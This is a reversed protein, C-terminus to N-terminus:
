NAEKIQDMLKKQMTTDDRSICYLGSEGEKGPIVYQGESAIIEIGDTVHLQAKAVQTFVYEAKDLEFFEKARMRIKEKQYNWINETKKRAVIVGDMLFKLRQNFPKHMLMGGMHVLIDSVLFRPVIATRERDMVLTVDLLTRHQLMSPKQPNPVYLPCTLTSVQIKAEEDPVAELFYIGDSLLLLLGRRGKSRWTVKHTGVQFYQQLNKENLRCQSRIPLSMLDGKVNTLEKVVAIARMFRKSDSSLVQMPLPVDSGNDTGGVVKKNSSPQPMSASSGEHPRKLDQVSPITVIENRLPNDEGLSFWWSPLNSHYVTIEQKGKFIQQLLKILDIDYLGNSKSASAPYAKEVMALATRVPAKLKHCLYYAILFSAAGNGGRGDFIAIHLTPNDKWHQLCVDLFEKITSPAITFPRIKTDDGNTDANKCKVDASQLQHYDIGFDDWENTNHIYFSGTAEHFKELDLATCDLVLGVAIGKAILRQVYMPVTFVNRDGYKEEYVTSLPAKLLLFKTRPVVTLSLRPISSWRSWLAANWRLLSGRESM